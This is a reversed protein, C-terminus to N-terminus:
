QADWPLVYEAGFAALEPDKSLVFEKEFPWRSRQGHQNSHSEEYLAFWAFILTNSAVAYRLEDPELAEVFCIPFNNSRGIPKVYFNGFGDCGVPIWTWQKWEPFQTWIEEVRCGEQAQMTGFFGPPGDSIQLWRRIDPPLRVNLTKALADIERSSAGAPFPDPPEFGPKLSFPDIGTDFRKMADRREKLLSSLENEISPIM